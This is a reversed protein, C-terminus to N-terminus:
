KKVVVVFKYMFTCIMIARENSIADAEAPKPTLIWFRRAVLFDPM